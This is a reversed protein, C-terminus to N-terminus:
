KPCSPTKTGWLRHKQSALGRRWGRSNQSQATGRQSGPGFNKRDGEVGGNLGQLIPVYLRGRGKDGRNGRCDFIAARIARDNNKNAEAMLLAM